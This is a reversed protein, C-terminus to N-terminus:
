MIKSKQDYNVHIKKRSTGVVRNKRASHCIELNQREQVYNGFFQLAFITKM